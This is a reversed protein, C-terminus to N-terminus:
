RSQPLDALGLSRRLKQLLAAARFPRALFEAAGENMAQLDLDWEGYASMVFVVTAPRIRRIQCLLDIGNQGPLRLDTLVADAPAAAFKEIAEEASAARIADFGDQALVHVLFALVDPNDDVVLVRKRRAKGSPRPAAHPAEFDTTANM